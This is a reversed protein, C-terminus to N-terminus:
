KYLTSLIQRTETVIQGLRPAYTSRFLKLDHIAANGGDRILEASATMPPSLLRHQAANIMASLHSQSSGATRCLSFTPDVLDSLVAELLGRCLVACAVEMGYIYCRHAEEFYQQVWPSAHQIRLVPYEKIKSFSTELQNIVDLALAADLNDDERRTPTNTEPDIRAVSLSEGIYKLVEERREPKLSLLWEEIEVKTPEPPLQGVSLRRAAARKGRRALISSRIAQVQKVADDSIGVTQPASSIYAEVRDKDGFVLLGNKEAWWSGANIYDL